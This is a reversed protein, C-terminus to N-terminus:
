WDDRARGLECRVRAKWLLLGSKLFYLKRYDRLAGSLRGDSGGDSENDHDRGLSVIRRGDM